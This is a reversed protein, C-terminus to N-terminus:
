LLPDSCSRFHIKPQKVHTKDDDSSSGPTGTGIWRVENHKEDPENQSFLRGSNHGFDIVGESVRANLRGNDDTVGSETVTVRATEAGATAAFIVRAQSKAKDASSEGCAALACIAIFIILAQRGM